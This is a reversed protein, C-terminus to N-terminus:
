NLHERIPVTDTGCKEYLVTTLASLNRSILIILVAPRRIYPVATVLAPTLIGFRQVSDAPINCSM